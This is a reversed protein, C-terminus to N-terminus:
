NHNTPQQLASLGALMWANSWRMFSTKELHREFKRFYFFGKPDQMECIM